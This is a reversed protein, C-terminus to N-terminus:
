LRAGESCQWGDKGPVFRFSYTPQDMPGKGEPGYTTHQHADARGGIISSLSQLAIVLAAWSMQEAQYPMRGATFAGNPWPGYVPIPSPSEYPQLDEDEAEEWDVVYQREDGVFDTQPDLMTAWGDFLSNLPDPSLMAM